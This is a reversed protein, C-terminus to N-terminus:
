KIYDAAERLEGTKQRFKVAVGSAKVTEWCNLCISTNTSPEYTLDKIGDAGIAVANLRLQLLADGRSAPPDNLMKRCSYATISGLTEFSEPNTSTSNLEVVRISHVQQMTAPTVTTVDIVPVHIGCGTFSLLLTLLILKKM